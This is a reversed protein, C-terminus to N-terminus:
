QPLKVRYITYPTTRKNKGENYEPQKQIQSCSIYLYNDDTVSYSDPWILRDDQLVETLKHDKDVKMLASQQLDGLYLNAQHDFIMGDSTTFPGLDEDWETVEVPALEEDMLIKARIRYLKNDTLPKYYLWEGDPTLAIGDSHIKLPKGEKMLEKGDIVFRFEPDSKTSEDDLLL